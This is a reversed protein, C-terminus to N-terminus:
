YNIFDIDTNEKKNKCSFYFTASFEHNGLTQNSIKSIYLLYSYGVNFKFFNYGINVNYINANSNGYRMGISSMLNKNLFSINVTYSKYIDQKQFLIIPSFKLKDNLKCTYSAHIIYKIPIKDIPYLDCEPQNIHHISVGYVFNHHAILIGPNIDLVTQPNKIIEPNYNPYLPGYGPGITDPFIFQFNVKRHNFGFEIAPILCLKKKFFHISSSYSLYANKTCIANDNESDYMGRVAINGYKEKIMQDYSFYYTYNVKGLAPFRNQYLLVVRNCGDTGSFAPNLYVSTNKILAFQIDQSNSIFAAFVILLLIIIRRKM